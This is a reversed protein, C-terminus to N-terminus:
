TLVQVVFAVGLHAEEGITYERYESDSVVKIYGDAFPGNVAGRISTTSSPTPDCFADLKEIGARDSAKSAVLHVTFGVWNAQGRQAADYETTGKEIVAVSRSGSVNIKDGWENAVAVGDLTLLRTRLEARLAPLTV